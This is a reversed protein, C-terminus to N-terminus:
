PSEEQLSPETSPSPDVPPPETLMEDALAHLGAGNSSKVLVLDGRQRNARWWELAAATDPVFAAEQGFSGELLAGTFIPRAGQGVVLLRQVDLRVTLRGIADHEALSDAGLERMEGLIAVTRRGQGLEALTKLAARMSDPNANYSDDLVTIGGGLDTRAMRHPSDPAASVLRDAVVAPPVGTELAVAAAALANTVHHEGLLALRVPTRTDRWCLDFAAHGQVLHLGEARVDADPGRGFTVVRAATEAAMAAVLDDDANLVALGDPGLAAPLEAKTAAVAALTGFGELHARGVRLVVAVDPPAISTLYRINGPADAGMELVLVDSDAPAGLVTLPLGLENNFSGAAAHVRGSLVRRLLDKTTTKGVSGTVGIVLPGPRAGAQEGDARLRALDARAIDGLARQVDPVVIQPLEVAVPHAVLAGAAGAGAAAAVFDHGDVRAGPLAAYLDGQRVLRSDIVAQRWDADNGHLVGQCAQAASALRRM